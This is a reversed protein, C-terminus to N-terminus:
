HLILTAKGKGSLNKTAEWCSEYHELAPSYRGQEAYSKALVGRVSPIWPSSPNNKIFTELDDAATKIDKHKDVGFADWLAQSDSEDPVADSVATIRQGFFNANALKSSYTSRKQGTVDPNNAQSDQAYTGTVGVLLGAAMLGCILSRKFMTLHKM